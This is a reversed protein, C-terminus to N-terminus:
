PGRSLTPSLTVLPQHEQEQPFPRPRLGASDTLLKVGVLQLGERVLGTGGPGRPSGSGGEPLMGRAVATDVRNWSPNGAFAPGGSVWSGRFLRQTGRGAAWMTRVAASATPGDPRWASGCRRPRAWGRGPLHTLGVWTPSHPASPSGRGSGELPVPPVGNGGMMEKWM